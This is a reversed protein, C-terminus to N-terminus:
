SSSSLRFAKFNFWCNYLIYLLRFIYLYRCIYNYVHIHHIYVMALPVKLELYWVGSAHLMM